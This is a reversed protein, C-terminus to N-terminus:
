EPIAKGLVDEVTKYGEDQVRAFDLFMEFAENILEELKPTLGLWDIIEDDLMFATFLFLEHEEVFDALDAEKSYYVWLEALIHVKDTFETNTM